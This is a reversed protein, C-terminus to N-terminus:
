STRLTALIGATVAEVDGKGVASVTIMLGTGHSVLHIVEAHATGEAVPYHGHVVVVRGGGTSVTRLDDLSLAQQFMRETLQDATLLRSFGSKQVDIVQYRLGSTPGVASALTSAELQSVYREASYGQRAAAERIYAESANASRDYRHWGAPLAFRVAPNAVVLEHPARAARVGLFGSVGMLLAVLVM